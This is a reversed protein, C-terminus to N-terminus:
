EPEDLIEELIHLEQTDTPSYEALRGVLMERAARLKEMKADIRSILVEIVRKKANPDSSLTLGIGRIYNTVAYTTM